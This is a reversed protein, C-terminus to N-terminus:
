SGYSEGEQQPGAAKITAISTIKIPTKLKRNLINIAKNVNDDTLGYRNDTKILHQLLNSEYYDYFCEDDLIVYEKINPHNQLWSLIGHGRDLWKREFTKSHIKLKGKKWLHEDLYHCHYYEYKDYKRAPAWGDKWSSTLVIIAGTKEVIKALRRVKDKDIGLFNMCRSPSSECNLVGDIDLFIVKQTKM